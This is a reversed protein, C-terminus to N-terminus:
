FPPSAVSATGAAESAENRRRTSGRLVVSTDLYITEKHRDPQEIRNLLAEVVRTGLEYPYTHVTTLPPDIIKANAIDDFGTVEIQEPVQVKMEKLARVASIGIDDNACVFATPLTALSKLQATMWEVSLYPQTDDPTISFAPDPEYGSARMAREFGLWREYFSRCHHLDGIFGIHEHGEDILTKTLTYTAFENEVMLIDYKHSDFVTNPLSDIFVTPIGAGLITEIYPKHFIEICVIGDINFPNINAPLANNRIDEPKVLTLILNFGRASLATEMGKITEAYFSIVNIDGRTLLAINGMNISSFNKYKLEAAKQLIRERTGEPIQPHNNLAKSVTNRSLGLADAIDQITVREAM